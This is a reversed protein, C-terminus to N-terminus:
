APLRQLAQVGDIHRGGARPPDGREVVGGGGLQGVDLKLRQRLRFTDVVDQERLVQRQLAFLERRRLGLVRLYAVRSPRGKARIQLRVASLLRFLVCGRGLHRVQQRKRRRDDRELLRPPQELRLIRGLGGTLHRRHAAGQGLDVGDASYPVCGHLSM